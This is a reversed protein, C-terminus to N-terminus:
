SNIINHIDEASENVNLQFYIATNNVGLVYIVTGRDEDKVINEHFYVINDVNVYIVRGKDDGNTTNIRQTLKISKGM